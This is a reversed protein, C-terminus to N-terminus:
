GYFLYLRYGVAKLASLDLYLKVGVEENPPMGRNADAGKGLYEKAAFVRRGVAKDQADTLTLELSPYAQAFAARNRLVANLVVVDPHAPDAELSSTEIGLLDPYRPLPVRCGVAGCLQELYPKTGPYRAALDSRYLYAGQLALGALLPLSGLAWLWSRSRRRPEEGAAPAPSEEAGAAPAGQEAATPAPETSAAAVESQEGPVPPIEIEEPEEHFRAEEVPQPTPPTEEAPEPTPLPTEDVPEPIPPAEEVPEPIPPTTEEVSEQIIHAITEVPESSTAAPEGALADRANFVEGCRGCRVDGGHADLQSGTVRFSTRCRPCTTVMGM